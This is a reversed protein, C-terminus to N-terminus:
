ICLNKNLFHPELCDMLENISQAFDPKMQDTPFININSGLGLAKGREIWYLGRVIRSVVKCYKEGDFSVSVAPELYAGKFRCM